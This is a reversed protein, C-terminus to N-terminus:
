ASRKNNSIQHVYDEPRRSDDFYLAERHEREPWYRIGYSSHILLGNSLFAEAELAHPALPRPWFCPRKFCTLQQDKKLWLKFCKFVSDQFHRPWPYGQGSRELIPKSFEFDHFACFRTYFRVVWSVYFGIGSLYKGPAGRAM